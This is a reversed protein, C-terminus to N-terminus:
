VNPLEARLVLFVSFIVKVEIPISPDRKKKERIKERTTTGGKGVTAPKRGMCITLAANRNAPRLGPHTLSPGSVMYLNLFDYEYKSELYLDVDRLM